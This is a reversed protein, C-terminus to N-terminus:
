DNPLLDALMNDLNAEFDSAMNSGSDDAPAESPSAGNTATQGNSSATTGNAQTTDAKGSQSTAKAAGGFGGAGKTETTQSVQGNGAASAQQTAQAKKAKIAALREELERAERDEDSETEEAPEQQQAPQQTEEKPQASGFGNTAQQNGQTTDQTTDQTTPKQTSAQTATKEPPQEFVQEPSPTQAESVGPTAFESESLIREVQHGDRLSLVLDAEADNLPRIASIKFKPFSEAPDFQIRTAVAYYPYGMQQMKQGYMALDQLSAAPVRLLMPGGFMENNIDAVPAVATRKSDSCAKGQKGAPTVRSGWQNHPCMACSESQKKASTPDPTVGNNSFCDPAASSGEVYGAEYWIKSISKSAKLIVVEISSKPGDGDERMLQMEEGRYRTSWVKGKYGILGFSSQIGSSLDDEAPVNQFKTSVQGFNQPILESSM